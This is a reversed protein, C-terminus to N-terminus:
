GETIGSNCLFEIERRALRKDAPPRVIDYLTAGHRLRWKATARISLASWRVTIRTHLEALMQESRMTERGGIPEVTAWATGREVWTVTEGGAGDSASVPEDFSVRHRLRGARM